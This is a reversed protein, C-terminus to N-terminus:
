LPEQTSTSAPPIVSMDVALSAASVPYLPPRVGDRKWGFLFQVAGGCVRGQCPGMGCRTQLKADRWGARRELPGFAVDECRCVLTDSKALARLEPRLAFSEGLLIRFRRWRNRAAFLTQARADLGAAALGAIGGEVLACDVGGIGASEGASYVDAITTQQLDDVQVADNAIACGLLMALETNPILNFGCALADCDLTRTHSGNTLTVREVRADGEAKVPWWGFRYPVGLLRYKVGMGQMLKNPYALLAIAFSALRSFSAQEAIFQIHAGRQKLGDAVAPLLPGSGAVVIRKGAVPWGNKVMAQLGGPGFVGPLTWGPFPLFLERAGTALILKRWRIQAAGEPTEVLITRPAPAAFVSAQTFVRAGSHRLRGFWSQAQELHPKGTEGRWIQGGIWPSNDILATRKGAEAAACAAAIGAPGAGAIVVDFDLRIPPTNPSASPHSPISANNM